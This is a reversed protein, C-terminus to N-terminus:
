PANPLPPASSIVLTAAGLALVTTSVKAAGCAVKWVSSAPSDPM